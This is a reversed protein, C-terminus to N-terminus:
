LSESVAEKREVFESRNDLGVSPYKLLRECLWVSGCSMYISVSAAFLPEFGLILTVSGLLLSFEGNNSDNTPCAGGGDYRSAVVGFGHFVLGLPSSPTRSSDKSPRPAGPSASAPEYLPHDPRRRLKRSCQELFRMSFHIAATSNRTMKAAITAAIVLPLLLSETLLRRM